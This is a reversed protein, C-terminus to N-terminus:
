IVCLVRGDKLAKYRIGDIYDIMDITELVARALRAPRLYM